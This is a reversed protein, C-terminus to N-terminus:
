LETPFFCLSIMATILLDKSSSGSISKEWTNAHRITVKWRQAFAEEESFGEGM